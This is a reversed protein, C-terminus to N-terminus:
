VVRIKMRFKTEQICRVEAFIYIKEVDINRKVLEKEEEEEFFFFSVFHSTVSYILKEMEFISNTRAIFIWLISRM